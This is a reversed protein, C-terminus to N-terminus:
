LTLCQRFYLRTSPMVRDMTPSTSGDWTAIGRARVSGAWDFEGAAILQGAYVTLARVAGNPGLGIPSWSYGDWAAVNRVITDCAVSFSGGAIVKDDYLTLAFVQGDLGPVSFGRAWYIDDPHSAPSKPSALSSDTSGRAPWPQLAALVILVSLTLVAPPIRKM